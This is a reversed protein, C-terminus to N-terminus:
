NMYQLQTIYSKVDVFQALLYTAYMWLVNVM